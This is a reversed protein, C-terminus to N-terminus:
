ILLFDTALDHDCECLGFLLSSKMNIQDGREAAAHQQNSISRSLSLSFASEIARQKQYRESQLRKRLLKAIPCATGEDVVLRWNIAILNRGSLLGSRSDLFCHPSYLLASKLKQM